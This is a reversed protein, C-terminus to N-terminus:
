MRVILSLLYSVILIVAIAGFVIQNRRQQRSFYTTKDNRNPM